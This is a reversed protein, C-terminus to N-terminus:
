FTRAQGPSDSPPSAGGARPPLARTLRNIETQLAEVQLQLAILAAEDQASRGEIRRAVAQRISPFLLSTLLVPGGVGFVIAVIPIFLDVVNDPM